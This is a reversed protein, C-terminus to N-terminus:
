PAAALTVATVTELDFLRAAGGREEVDALLYWRDLYPLILEPRVTPETVDQMPESYRLRHLKVLSGRVLADGLAAFIQQQTSPPATVAEIMRAVIRHLHPPFLGPLKTLLADLRDSPISRDRRAARLILVLLQAEALTFMGIDSPVGETAFRYGRERVLPLAMDSRIVNLDAQAQRESLFYRGALQQRSWGPFEAIATVVSWIRRIREPAPQRRTRHTTTYSHPALAAVM